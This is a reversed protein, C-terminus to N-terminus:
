TAPRSDAGYPGGGAEASEQGLPGPTTPSVEAPGGAREGRRLEEMDPPSQRRTRPPPRPIYVDGRTEEMTASPPPGPPTDVGDSASSPGRIRAGM